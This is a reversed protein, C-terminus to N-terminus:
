LIGCYNKGDEEKLIIMIYKNKNNYKVANVIINSIAREMLYQNGNMQFDAPCENRSTIVLEKFILNFRKLVNDSLLTIPFTTANFLADNKVEILSLDLPERVKKEM